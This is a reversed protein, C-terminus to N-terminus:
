SSIEVITELNNKITPTSSDHDLCPECMTNLQKTQKEKYEMNNVQLFWTLQGM